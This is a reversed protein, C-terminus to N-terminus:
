GRHCSSSPRVLSQSLCAPQKVLCRSAPLGVGTRWVIPPGAPLCLPCHGWITKWCGDHLWTSPHGISLVVGRPILSLLILPRVRANLGRTVGLEKRTANQFRLASWSIDKKAPSCPRPEGLCTVRTLAAVTDTQTFWLEMGQPQFGHALLQSM